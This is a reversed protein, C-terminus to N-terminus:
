SPTAGSWARRFSSGAVTLKALDGGRAIRAIACTALMRALNTNM